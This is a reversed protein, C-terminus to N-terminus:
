LGKLECLRAAEERDKEDLKSWTVNMADILESLTGRGPVRNNYNIVAEIYDHILNLNM